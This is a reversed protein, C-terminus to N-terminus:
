HEYSFIGKVLLNYCSKVNISFFNSTDINCEVGNIIISFRNLKLVVKTEFKGNIIGNLKIFINASQLKKYNEVIVSIIKLNQQEM